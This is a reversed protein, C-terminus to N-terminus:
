VTSFGLGECLGLCELSLSLVVITLECQVGLGQM